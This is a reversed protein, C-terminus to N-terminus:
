DEIMKLVNDPLSKSTSAGMEKLKHLQSTVSGKGDHLKNYSADYSKKVTNIQEGLKEMDTVFGVFKDYLAGARHAIAQANKQQHEYRWTNEVSRLAVMLTSPGVLLINKRFAREYLGEDAELALLLASEVPVFMFIFDLTKIGELKVYNKDSLLKVHLNLSSVHEKLYQEKDTQSSVYREYATLSTKADIIIERNDPLHVLVDPRYKKSGDDSKLSVERDYEHGLRLGSSELVKELIMEGWVGQTKNEGKLAQTLSRTEDSMKQNLEKLHHLEQQLMSREKTENVYVDNVQKKFQEIQEKFPAVVKNIEQTNQLVFKQSQVDSIRQSLDQFQLLMQEKNSQLLELKEQAAKEDRSLAMKLASSESKSQSLLTYLREIKVQMFYLAVGIIFIGFIFGLLLSMPEITM